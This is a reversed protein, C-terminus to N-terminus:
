TRRSQASERRIKRIRFFFELKNRCKVEDFTFVKKLQTKEKIANVKSLLEKDSVFCYLADSHNIIYEYDKESLTPYLPVNQAGIQLIGIDLVHWEYRNNSSIVAIKDNPKIGLNLLARSAINAQKIFQLTSISEWNNEKKFVYCKEQPFKEQQQYIFDFLRTPKSM